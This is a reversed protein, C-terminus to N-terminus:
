SRSAPFKKKARMLRPRLSDLVLIIRVPKEDNSLTDSGLIPVLVSM